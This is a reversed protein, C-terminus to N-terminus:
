VRRIRMALAGLAAIAAVSPLVAWEPAHLVRLTTANYLTWLVPILWAGWGAGLTLMAGFTFTVTPDPALAFLEAQSWPRGTLPAFLPQVLLAFAMMVGGGIARALPTAGETPRRRAAAVLLVAAEIGFAVAFWRAFTHITAYEHFFYFAAVAGWALALLVAGARSKRAGGSLLLVAVLMGAALAVFQSPWLRLNMRAFLGYYAHETYMVFDAPSYTWWDRM